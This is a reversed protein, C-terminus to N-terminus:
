KFLSLVIQVVVAAAVAAMLGNVRAKLEGVQSELAKLRRDLLLDFPSRPSLDLTTHEQVPSQAKKAQRRFLWQLADKLKDDPM